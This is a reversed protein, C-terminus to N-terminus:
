LPCNGPRLTPLFHTVVLAATMRQSSSEEVCSVSARATSFPSRSARVLAMLSPLTRMLHLLGLNLSAPSHSLMMDQDRFNERSALAQVPAHGLVRFCSGRSITLTSSTEVSTMGVSRMQGVVKLSAVGQNAGCPRILRKRFAHNVAHM